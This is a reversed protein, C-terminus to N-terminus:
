FVVERKESKPLAPGTAKAEIKGQANFSDAINSPNTKLSLTLQDENNAFAGTITLLGHPTEVLENIVLPSLVLGGDQKVIGSTVAKLERGANDKKLNFSLTVLAAHRMVAIEGDLRFARERGVIGGAVKLEGSAVRYPRMKWAPGADIELAQEPAAKISAVAFPFSFAQTTMADAPPNKPRVTVTNNELTIVVSYGGTNRAGLFAAVLANERFFNEAVEPLEKIERRAALYTERDRVVLLFPDQMSSYAGQKLTKIEMRAGQQAQTAGKEPAAPTESATQKVLSDPQQTEGQRTNCAAYGAPNTLLVALATLPFLKWHM